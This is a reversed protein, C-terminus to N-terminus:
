SGRACSVTLNGNSDFEGEAGLERLVGLMTRVDSLQPVGTLNLPERSLISAAMIPLVANKSGATRVTGELPRGGEIILKELGQKGRLFARSRTNTTTSSRRGGGGGRLIPGAGGLGRESAVRALRLAPIGSWDPLVTAVGEGLQRWVRSPGIIEARSLTASPRSGGELRGRRRAVGM